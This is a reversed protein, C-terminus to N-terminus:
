PELPQSHTRSLARHWRKSAFSLATGGLLGPLVWVWFSYGQLGLNGINVVLFATLTAICSTGMGTMHQIVRDARSLAPRLWYRLQAFGGLASGAGFICWLPRLRTVGVLACLVGATFLLFAIALDWLSRREASTARLARVGYSLNAASLLGILGLFHAQRDNDPAADLSRWICTVLATVSVVAMASAYVWGVRRHVSAGKKVVWPIWFTALAVGGAVIHISRLAAIFAESMDSRGSGGAEAANHPAVAAGRM